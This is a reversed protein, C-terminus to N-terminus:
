MTDIRLQVRNLRRKADELNEQTEETVDGNSILYEYYEVKDKCRLRQQRLEALSAPAKTKMKDEHLKLRDLAMEICKINVKILNHSQTARTHLEKIVSDIERDSYRENSDIFNSVTSHIDNITNVAENALVAQVCVMMKKTEEKNM